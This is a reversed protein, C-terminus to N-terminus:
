GANVAGDNPAAEGTWSGGLARHVALRAEALAREAEVVSRQSNLVNLRADLYDSYGGTGREFRRLQLDAADRASGLDAALLRVREVSEQHRKLAEEVESFATLVTQGYAMAQQRQQAESIDVNAALRGGDLIPATLAGLLNIFWNQPDFLGSPDESELGGTASLSLRPLRAAEAAAVGYRAADLRNRGARIDPRQELLQAPLGAPVADLTLTIELPETRELYDDTREPFTGLLVALRTKAAYLRADLQPVVAEAERLNERLSILEFSTAVGRLFAQEALSVRERLIDAQAASLDRLQESEVLDFYSRMTESAISLRLAELDWLSAEYNELAARSQNRLRGWLDAEYSLELQATFTSFSFRQTDGSSTPPQDGGGPMPTQGDGGPMDQGGPQGGGGPQQGGLAAGIGTAPRDSYNAQLGANLQPFQAARERVYRGRVEDVRAIAEGIDLNNDLATEVLVDLTPDQYSRWWRVPRYEGASM